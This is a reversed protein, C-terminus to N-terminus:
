QKVQGIMSRLLLIFMSLLEGWWNPYGLFIIDYDEIAIDGKVAPRADSHLEEKALDICEKYDDPYSKELVIEFRDAGVAIPM